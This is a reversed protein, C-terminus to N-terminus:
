VSSFRFLFLKSCSSESCNCDSFSVEPVFASVGKVLQLVLVGAALGEESLFTEQWAFELSARAVASVAAIGLALQGVTQKGYLRRRKPAHM